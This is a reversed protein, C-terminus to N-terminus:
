RAVVGFRRLLDARTAVRLKRMAQKLRNSATSIPLGLEYAMHKYSHGQIALSVVDREDTSLGVIDDGGLANRRALVLRKGDRETSDVVTWQGRVLATWRALADEPTSRKARRRAVESAKVMEVLACRAQPASAVPSAHLLKGSPTFVADTSPDDASPATLKRLRLAAGLHAGVRSLMRRERHPFQDNASWKANAARPFALMLAAASPDGSLLVWLPPLQTASWELSKAASAGAAQAIRSLRYAANGVFETPALVMAALDSPMQEIVKALSSATRSGADDGIARATIETRAGVHVTYGIVGDGVSFPAAARVVDALWRNEDSQWSYAAELIRIPDAHLPEGM